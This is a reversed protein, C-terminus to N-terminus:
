GKSSGRPNDVTGQERKLEEYVAFFEAMEAHRGRLEAERRQQKLKELRNFIEEQVHRPDHVYEFEFAGIEGATEIIVTGHNLLQATPGPISLSVNQVRDLTTERRSEKLFLPRRKLDILRDGSIQYIDNQWDWYAYFWWGFIPLLLLLLLLSIALTGIDRVLFLFALGAIFIAAFFPPMSASLLLWGSKRWTITNGGDSVIQTEFTLLGRLRRGSRRLSSLLDFPAGTKDEAEEEGPSAPEEGEQKEVQDELPAVPINLRRGLEQRISERMEAKAQTSTHQMPAFLAERVYDPHSVDTFIIQETAAATQIVVDGFDLVNALVGEQKVQVDQVRELPAEDRDERLLLVREVHLVRLSTIIYHDNRWDLFHYIMFFATVGLLSGGTVMLILSVLPSGKDGPFTLYLASVFLGLIGLLFTLPLRRLLAVWHKTSFFLTVEDPQQWPFRTRGAEERQRGAARLTDRIDPFEEMLQDFDLKDLVLLEADTLVDITANRPEGTLLGTEGFYDGPYFYARLLERDGARARARLEGRDVIYFAGARENERVVVTGRPYGERRFRSVWRTLDEDSMVDFLKMQDLRQVTDVALREEVVMLQGLKIV